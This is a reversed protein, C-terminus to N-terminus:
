QETVTLSLTSASSGEGELIVAAAEYGNGEYTVLSQNNFSSTSSEKFGAGTLSAALSSALEKASVDPYTVQLFWGDKKNDTISTASEITGGDPLSVESPFNEPLEDKGISISGDEGEIKVSDGDADIEVDGGGGQKVAEEALEEAAQGCGTLVLASVAITAAISRTIRM